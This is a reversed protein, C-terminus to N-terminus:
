AAKWTMDMAHCEHGTAVAVAGNRSACQVSMIQTAGPTGSTVTAPGFSTGATLDAFYYDWTTNSRCVLILLCTNNVARVIGTDVRVATGAGNYIIQWNGSSLDAADYGVGFVHTQASPDGALLSSSGGKAGAYFQYGTADATLNFKFEFRISSTVSVMLGSNFGANSGASAASVAKTRYARNTISGASPSTTTVTGAATVAGGFASMNSGQSPRARYWNDMAGFLPAGSYGLLLPPAASIQPNGNNNWLKGTILPDTTPLSAASVLTTALGVSTVDGTLNGGGSGNSAATIRGKADVTLNTSTYSGPTVATNALTVAAAGPGSATADGTLSSIAGSVNAPVGTISAFAPTITVNAAASLRGKLDVTFTAVQTASGYGAAAVGTSSLTAAQSGTGPGATVDGTLQTIGSGASALAAIQAATVSFNAGSRNVPIQDTNQAAVAPTLQSIKQDAM